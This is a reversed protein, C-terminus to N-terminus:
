SEAAHRMAEAAPTNFGGDLPSFTTQEHRAVPTFMFVAVLLAGMGAVPFLFPRARGGEGSRRGAIAQWVRRRRREPREPHMGLWQLAFAESQPDLTASDVLRQLAARGSRGAQDQDHVYLQVDEELVFPLYHEM